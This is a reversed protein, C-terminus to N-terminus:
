GALYGMQISWLRYLTAIPFNSDQSDLFANMATQKIDRYDGAEIRSVYRTILAEYEEVTKCEEAAAAFEASAKNVLDICDRSPSDEWAVSFSLTPNSKVDLDQSKAYQWTKQDMGRDADPYAVFMNGTKYVDMMYLSDPLREACGNENVEYHTGKIGYQLLNRFNEDTNLLTVIEMAANRNDSSVFSSLAFMSGFLDEETAVPNELTVIYYDEEYAELEKGIGKFVGVAFENESGAEGVYGELEITKLAIMQNRFATDNLLNNFAFYSKDATFTEYDKNYVSGIVSFTSPDIEYEYTSRSVGADDTYDVKTYNMSWFHTNTYGLYSDCWVPDIDTEYKAVDKILPLTDALSTLQNIDSYKDCMEKNILLVTYEGVLTNNPVAFYGKETKAAAMFAPYVYSSLKKAVNSNLLTDLKTLWARDIYDMYQEYSGIFLIDVQDESVEPYKIEDTKETEEESEVVPPDIYMAMDPYALCFKEYVLVEDTNGAYKETRKFNTYYKKATTSNKTYVELNELKEELIDYYQEETYYYMKLQTKYKAKTTKNIAEEVAAYQERVADVRAKKDASLAEYEEDTYYVQTDTIVLMTLTKATDSASVETEEKKCSTLFVSLLMLVCLVLSILRKSMITRWKEPPPLMENCVFRWRPNVIDARFLGCFSGQM